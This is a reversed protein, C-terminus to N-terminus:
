DEDHGLVNLATFSLKLPKIQVKVYPFRVPLVFIRYALFRITSAFLTQIIFKKIAFVTYSNDRTAFFFIEVTIANM